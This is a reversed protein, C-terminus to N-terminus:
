KNRPSTFQQKYTNELDMQALGSNIIDSLDKKNNKMQDLEMSAGKRIKNGTM